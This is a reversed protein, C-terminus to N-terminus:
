YPACLAQEILGLHMPASLGRVWVGISRVDGHKDRRM